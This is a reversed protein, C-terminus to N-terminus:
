NRGGLGALLFATASLDPLRCGRTPHPPAKPSNSRHLIRSGVFATSLPEPTQELEAKPLQQEHHQGDRQAENSESLRLVPVGKLARRGGARGTVLERIRDEDGFRRVSRLLVAGGVIFLAAVVLAVGTGMLWWPDAFKM